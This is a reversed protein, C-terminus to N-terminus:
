SGVAYCAYGSPNSRQGMRRRRQRLGMHDFSRVSDRQRVCEGDGLAVREDNGPLMDARNIFEGDELLLRNPFEDPKNTLLQHRSEGRVAEVDADIVPNGRALRDHVRVHM